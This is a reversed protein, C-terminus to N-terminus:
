AMWYTLDERVADVPTFGDPRYSEEISDAMQWALRPRLRALRMYARTARLKWLLAKM